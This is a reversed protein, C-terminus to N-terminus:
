AKIPMPYKKEDFTYGDSYKLYREGYIYEMLGTETFGIRYIIDIATRIKIYYCKAGYRDRYGEMNYFFIKGDFLFKEQERHNALGHMKYIAKAMEAVRAKTMKNEGKPPNNKQEERGQEEHNYIIM